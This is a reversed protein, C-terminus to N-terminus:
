FQGAIEEVQQLGERIIREGNHPFEHHGEIVCTTIDTIGFFSLHNKVFNVAMEFRDDEAYIGGRANLLAVKKDTLLGTAGEESYSFTKGPHHMYDLYSHLVAPASLNWLPFAFVIKDASIFQELKSSVFRHLTREETTMTLGKAAKNGADIVKNGLYPLPVEYLDIETITDNPHSEKYSLLFQEYMKVSVSSEMPRDNAKVFLVTNM